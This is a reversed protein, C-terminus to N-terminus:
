LMLPFILQFDAQNTDAIFGLGLKNDMLEARHPKEQVHLAVLSTKAKSQLFVLITILFIKLCLKNHHKVEQLKFYTKTPSHTLLHTKRCGRTEERPAM